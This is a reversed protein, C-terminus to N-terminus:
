IAFLTQSIEGTLGRIVLPTRISGILTGINSSEANEILIGRDSNRRRGGGIPCTRSPVCAVLLGPNGNLAEGRAANPQELGLRRWCRRSVLFHHSDLM